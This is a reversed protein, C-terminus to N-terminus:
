RMCIRPNSATLEIERRDKEAKLWLAAFVGVVVVVGIGIYVM